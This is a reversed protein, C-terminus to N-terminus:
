CAVQQELAQVAAWARELDPSDAHWVFTEWGDVGGIVAAWATMQLRPFGSTAAWAYLASALAARQQAPSEEGPESILEVKNRVAPVLTPPDPDPEVVQAVQVVLIAPECAAPQEPAPDFLGLAQERALLSAASVRQSTRRGFM